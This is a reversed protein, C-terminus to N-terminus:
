FDPVPFQFASDRILPFKGKLGQAQGNEPSGLKVLQQDKDAQLYLKAAV